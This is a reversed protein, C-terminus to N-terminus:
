RNMNRDNMNRIGARADNYNSQVNQSSISGSGGIIIGSPTTNHQAQSSQTAPPNQPVTSATPTAPTISTTSANGNASIQQNTRRFYENAAAERFANGSDLNTNNALNRLDDDRLAGIIKNRKEETVKSALQQNAALDNVASALAVRGSDNTAFVDDLTSTSFNALQEGSVKGALDDRDSLMQNIEALEKTNSTNTAANLLMESSVGDSGNERIYKLTDDDMGTLVNSGQKSFAESMKIDGGGNVFSQLSASGNESKGVQKGFQSIVKNSSSALQGLVKTDNVNGSSLNLGGLSSLMEKNMGRGEAATIAAQLRTANEANRDNNYAAAAANLETAMNSRTLTSYQESYNKLAQSERDSQLRADYIDNDLLENRAREDSQDRRYQARNAAINRNGGRIMRGFRGMKIANGNADVGARIRAQRMKGAQEATKYMSSNRMAGTARGRAATGLGTLMGGVKGMAAFSGKLVMPILFIPVVGIVLAVLWGSFDGPNTSLLLRSVYDGAGVLLGAIPYVLLLGEFFKWWKDFLRKTNPLMYVVVALPSIVTLVIIAAKRVALLIFLFFIAVVVGLASVLLSLLIAPNLWIAGVMGVIGGLLGVGALVGGIDLSRAGGFSSSELANVTITGNNGLNSSLSTFIGQLGNGLINSLDVLLLCIVYSLNILIASIIMKPLIKKIGYNDIGIGTLQSFIVILLLIVFLVNAIDRFTGWAQEVASNKGSFLTPEVQLNPAVYDTYIDEAANGMWELLPCVVWGLAGAGRSNRCNDESGYNDPQEEDSRDGPASEETEANNIEAGAPELDKYNSTFTGNKVIEVFSNFSNKRSDPDGFNSELDISGVPEWAEGDFRAWLQVVPTDGSPFPSKDGNPRIIEGGREEYEAKEENLVQYQPNRGVIEMYLKRGDSLVIPSSAGDSMSLYVVNKQNMDNITDNFCVANTKASKDGVTYNIAYCGKENTEPDYKIDAYVNVGSVSLLALVGMAFIIFLIIRSHLRRM